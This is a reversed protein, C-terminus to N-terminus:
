KRKRKILLLIILGFSCIGVIIYLVILFENIEEGTRPLIDLDLKNEVKTQSNDKNLKEDELKETENASSIVLSKDIVIRVFEYGSDSPILSKEWETKDKPNVKIIFGNFEKDGSSINPYNNKFYEIVKNNDFMVELISLISKYTNETLIGKEAVLLTYEGDYGSKNFWINGKSKEASGDGSIYQKLDELDSVEIYTNSFDVLPIKKTIDVKIKFKNSSINEVEYGEKELTYNTAKDSNITQLLEGEQYGHLQGIVDIVNSAIYAKVFAAEEEKNIEISLINGELLLEVIETKGSANVKINISNVDKTANISGGANKYDNVISSKNFKEVIQELTISTAYVKNCIFLTVLFILLIKIANIIKKM